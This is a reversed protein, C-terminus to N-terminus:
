LVAVVNWQYLVLFLSAFLLVIRADLFRLYQVSKSFFLTFVPAVNTPNRKASLTVVPAVSDYLMSVPSSGNFKNGAADSWSGAPLSLAVTGQFIPTVTVSYRSGSGALSVAQCNACTPLFSAATLGIVPENFVINFVAINSPNNQATFLTLLPARVDVAVQVLVGAANPNGLSDFLLGEPMRFTMNPSGGALAQALASASTYLMMSFSINALNDTNVVSLSAVNTCSALLASNLQPNAFAVPSDFTVILTAAANACCAATVSSVPGTTKYTALAPVNPALNCIGVQNCALDQPMWFGVSGSLLPFVTIQYLTNSLVLVSVNAANVSAYILEQLCQQSNNIGTVPQNFTALFVPAQNTVALLPVVTYGPPTTTFVSIYTASAANGRGGSFTINAPFRFTVNCDPLSPTLTVYFITGSGQVDVAAV